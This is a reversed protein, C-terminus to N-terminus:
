KGLRTANNFMSLTLIFMEFGAVFRRDDISLGVIKFEPKEIIKTM